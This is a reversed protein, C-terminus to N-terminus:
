YLYYSYKQKPYVRCEDKQPQGSAVTYRQDMAVCVNSKDIVMMVGEATKFRYDSYPKTGLGLNAITQNKANKCKATSSYFGDFEGKSLASFKDANSVKQNKVADYWKGM